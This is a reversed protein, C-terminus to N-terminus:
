YKHKLYVLHLPSYQLHSVRTTKLFLFYTKKLITNNNLYYSLYIINNLKLHNIM